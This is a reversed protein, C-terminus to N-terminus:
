LLTSDRLCGPDVGPDCFQLDLRGLFLPAFLRRPQETEAASDIAQHVGSAVIESPEDQVTAPYLPLDLPAAPRPLLEELM